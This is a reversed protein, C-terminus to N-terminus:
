IKPLKVEELLDSEFVRAPSIVSENLPINKGYRQAIIKKVIPNSLDFVSLKELKGLEVNLARKYAKWILESCYIADDSWNFYIDYKKGLFKTVEKKLTAISAESELLNTKKLRKVVYQQNKGRKIWDKLLTKKVPQVAEYVFINEGEKFIIGCHSYNSKTALQIAQSQTSLSTQFIIDGQQFLKNKEQSDFSLLSIALVFAFLFFILKRM